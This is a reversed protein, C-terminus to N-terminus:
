PPSFPPNKVWTKALNQIAVLEETRRVRKHTPVGLSASRHSSLLSKSAKSQNDQARCTSPLSHLSVPSSRGDKQTVPPIMGQRVFLFTTRMSMKYGFNKRLNRGTLCHTLAALSCRSQLHCRNGPSGM